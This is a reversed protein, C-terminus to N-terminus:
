VRARLGQLYWAITTVASGRCDAGQGFVADGVRCMVRM